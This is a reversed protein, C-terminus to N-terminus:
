DLTYEVPSIKLSKPDVADPFIRYVTRSSKGALYQVELPISSEQGGQEVSLKLSTVARSSDNHIKVEMTKDEKSTMIEVRFNVKEDPLNMSDMTLLVVLTGLILLSISLSVLEAVKRGKILSKM